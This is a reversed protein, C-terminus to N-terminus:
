YDRELLRGLIHDKLKPIFAKFAPDAHNEHVYSYLNIPDNCSNSMHYRKELYQSLDTNEKVSVGQRESQTKLQHHDAALQAQELRRVRQGIQRTM